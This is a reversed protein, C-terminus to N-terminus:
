PDHRRRLRDVFDVAAAYPVRACRGIHVVELDGRGVLDYALTRGIGLLAAAEPITLLLRSQEQPVISLDASM